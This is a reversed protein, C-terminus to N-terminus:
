YHMYRTTKLIEKTMKKTTKKLTNCINIQLFDHYTIQYVPFACLKGTVRVLVAYIDASGKLPPFKSNM